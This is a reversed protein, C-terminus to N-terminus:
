NHIPKWIHFINKVQPSKQLDFTLTLGWFSQLRINGFRYSIFWFHWYFNFLFDLIPKWFALCKKVGSSRQLESTLSLGKFSQLLIDRFRYFISLFCWHINSLFDHLPKRITFINKVVPSRWFDFTLTLGWLSQHRIDWFRYSISPFLWYIDSLFDQIPEGIEPMNKVESGRFTFIWLDFTLILGKFRQLWIDWFRYVLYSTDLNVSYLTTRKWYRGILM